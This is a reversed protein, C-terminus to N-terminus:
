SGAEAQGETTLCSIGRRPTKIRRGDCMVTLWLVGGNTM